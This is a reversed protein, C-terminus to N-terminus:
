KILIMKLLHYKIDTLYPIKQPGYVGKLNNTERVFCPLKAAEETIQLIEASKILIESIEMTVQKLIQTIVM